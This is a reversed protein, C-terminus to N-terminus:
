HRNVRQVSEVGHLGNGAGIHPLHHPLIAKQVNKTQSENAAERFDDDTISLYHDERVQRSHGIWQSEKFAGWRRYVENSRSMRMNDFPRPFVKLGARLVIKEFTTRLNQSADRYRNIVFERGESEQLFFLTELEEKLEPFLPVWRGEKGEHRKTKPSRVYFKELDRNVDEWRLNLVENPCRLGGIRVLAIIVRWDQCPCADLLGDLPAAEETFSGIELSEVARELLVGHLKVRWFRELIKMGRTGMM